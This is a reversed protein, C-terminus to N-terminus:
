DLLEVFDSLSKVTIYNENKQDSLLIGAIGANIGAQADSTKDGLMYSKSKDINYKHILQNILKPAPKRCDCNDDPSHPCFVIEEIKINNKTFEALM